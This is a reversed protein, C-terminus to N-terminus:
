EVDIMNAADNLNKLDKFHYQNKEIIDKLMEAGVDVPVRHIYSQRKINGNSSLISNNIDALRSIYKEDKIDIGNIVLQVFLDVKYGDETWNNSQSSEKLQEPMKCKDWKDSLVVCVSLVRGRLTNFIIDGNRLELIKKYHEPSDMDAEERYNYNEPAWLIRLNFQQEFSANQNVVYFRRKRYDTSM